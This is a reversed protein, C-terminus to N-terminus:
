FNLENSKKKETNPKEKTQIDDALRKAGNIFIRTLSLIKNITNLIGISHKMYFIANVTNVAVKHFYVASSSYM